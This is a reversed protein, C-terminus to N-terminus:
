MFHTCIELLAQAHTAHPETHLASGSHAIAYQTAGALSAWECSASAEKLMEILDEPPIVRTSALHAAMALAALRASQELPTASVAPIGRSGYKKGVRWLRRVAEQTSMVMWHYIVRHFSENRPRLLRPLKEAAQAVASPDEGRMAILMGYWVIDSCITKLMTMAPLSHFTTPTEEDVRFILALFHELWDNRSYLAISGGECPDRHASLLDDISMGGALHRERRTILYDM